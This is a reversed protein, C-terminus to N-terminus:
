SLQSCRVELIQGTEGPGQVPPHTEQLRQHVNSLRWMTRREFEEYNPEFYIDHVHSALHKPAALKGGIFAKYIVVKATVDALESGQWGEVQQQMPGFNRQMRDVGVSICDILSFSKPHKALVPTFVCPVIEGLQGAAKCYPKPSPLSM